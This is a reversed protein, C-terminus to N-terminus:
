TIYKRPLLPIHQTNLIYKQHYVSILTSPAFRGKINLEFVGCVDWLFVSHFFMSFHAQFLNLIKPEDFNPLKVLYGEWRQFTLFCKLMGQMVKDKSFEPISLVTTKTEMEHFHFHHRSHNLSKLLPVATTPIYRNLLFCGDRKAEHNLSFKDTKLKMYLHLSRELVELPESTNM